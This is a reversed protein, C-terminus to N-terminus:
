VSCVSFIVSYPIFLVKQTHGLAPGPNGFGHWLTKNQEIAQTSLYNNTKNINSSNNVMSDNKEFYM